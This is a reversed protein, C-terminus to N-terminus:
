TVSQIVKLVSIPNYAEVSLKSLVADKDPLSCCVTLVTIAKLFFFFFALVLVVAFPLPLDVGPRERKTRENRISPWWTKYVPMLLLHSVLVFFVFFCFFVLPFLQSFLSFQFLDFALSPFIFLTPM